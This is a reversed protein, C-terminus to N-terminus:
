AGARLEEEAEVAVETVEVVVVVMRDAAGAGVVLNIDVATAAEERLQDSVETNDNMMRPSAGKGDNGETGRVDEVHNAIPHGAIEVFVNEKVSERDWEVALEELIVKEEVISKAAAEAKAERLTRAGGVDAM